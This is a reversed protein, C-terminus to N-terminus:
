RLVGAELLRHITAADFGHELLVERNHEGLRPPAHRIQHPTGSLRIPADLASFTGVSPHDIEIIMENTRTQEDELAEGLTHVPACLIDEAELRKIWYDTTNKAFRERFLKQLAPRQGFMNEQTSFEERESLDEDFQLAASIHRLPNDKFAGVMVVAGDQTEFVGSLPMSAWNIEYGRNLQMCAEQMQMHLMSDYMTVDVRQGEGTRERAILAMLIGQMLHMGTTYDCLTTPYVSLPIDEAELRKIWYDTTNTAFRERFLEQLAPRQGFMNEQTSFEERESLDEGCHLAASIHRLPNDKFAGVMVVAGDQTEFVGSLPMAAWNIEYGRNLQMCAEQMQMHLMSDYM